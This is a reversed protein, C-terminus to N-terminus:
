AIQYDSLPYQSAEKIAMRTSMPRLLTPEGQPNFYYSRSTACNGITWLSDGLLETM